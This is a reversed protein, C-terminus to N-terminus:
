AIVTSFRPFTSAGSIVRESYRSGQNVYIAAVGGGSEIMWNSSAKGGDSSPFCYLPIKSQSVGGDVRAAPLAVLKPYTTLKSGSNGRPKLTVPSTQKVTGCHSPIRSPHTSAAANVHLGNLVFAPRTEQ